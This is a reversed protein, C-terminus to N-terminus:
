LPPGASTTIRSYLDLYRHASRTWSFDAKMGRALLQRWQEPEAYVALAREITALLAPASPADFQFGTATGDALTAPSTDVVSDALGGTRRVVPVTGYRLSYLQNLGCPEFRSPMLFLDAGAELRHSLGEDYGIHVGFRKPHAAQAQQLAQELEPQGSGLIVLQLDQALLEPLSDLLLDIGKQEVLRGVHGLLPVDAVPLGFTKQLARKNDRKGALRRLSYPKVLHPDNCPSWDRYDVGNLIGTLRDARHTLLGELGYGYEPTQIEEAYTPSVTTIWDAFSLGGKILSLQGHFELGHLSWWEAPLKLDHFTATDFLGMYALNHITFVTAPRDTELTLLAPVLGTQWDNCHVLEPQWDLGARDMALECIARAFLAFRHANDPWDGGQPAGYPGGARDFHVPSDVLYLKVTSGPLRGQLIRVEDPTGPLSLSAVTKLKGAKEAVGRYAPLVLRIDHGLNRIARPLSGSVDALGGTKILPYAESTAFLIKMYQDICIDHVRLSAACSQTLHSDLDLSPATNIGCIGYQVDLVSRGAHPIRYRAGSVPM